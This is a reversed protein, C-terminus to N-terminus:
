QSFGNVSSSPSYGLTGPSVGVRIIFKLFRWMNFGLFELGMWSKFGNTAPASSTIVMLGM